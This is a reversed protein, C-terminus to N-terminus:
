SMQTIIVFLDLYRQSGLLALLLYSELYSLTAVHAVFGPM